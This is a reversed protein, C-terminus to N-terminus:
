SSANVHYSYKETVQHEPQKRIYRLLRTLNMISCFTKTNVVENGIVLECMQHKNKNKNEKYRYGKLFYKYIEYLGILCSHLSVEEM